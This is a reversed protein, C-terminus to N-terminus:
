DMNSKLLEYTLRLGENLTYRCTWGLEKLKDSNLLAKTATSYGKKEKEDPLNYIIKKGNLSTLYEALETLSCHSDHNAVNYAEGNEGRLMITLIASVADAVYLYSYIQKGDSKLIINEGAIANKILQSIAKTDSLLMSSGYLRCLRPIVVDVNRTAIYAQCLAEGLRKGETYCARLTNCDIYGCYDEKFEETDGRNEGYIEVSSLFVVRCTKQVSALELLNRTGIVNAEITGVPDLSYQVPHTNSAAHIIYDINSQSMDFSIPMNVDHKCFVFEPKDFFEGLRVKAKEEDRSIAIIRINDHFMKNRYMIIGVFFVGIMGTAGTILITKNQLQKWNIADEAYLKIQHQYLQNNCFNKM